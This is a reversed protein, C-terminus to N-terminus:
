HKHEPYYELLAKVYGELADVPEISANQKAKMAGVIVAHHKKLREVYDKQDAKVRQTLFYDSITSIIKQAHIEKNDVWRVFQQRSQIDTKDVLEQLMTVAKRITAVDELLAEVRANDDYIGCPVQCHALAQSPLVLLIAIFIIFSLSKFQKM